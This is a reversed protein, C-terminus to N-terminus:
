PLCAFTLSAHVLERHKLTSRLTRSSAGPKTAFRMNQKSGKQSERRQWATNLRFSLPYGGLKNCTALKNVKEYLCLGLMSSSTKTMWEWVAEDIRRCLEYRMRTMM